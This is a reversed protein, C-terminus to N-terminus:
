KPGKRYETKAGSPDIMSATTNTEKRFARHPGPLDPSQSKETAITKVVRNPGSQCGIKAWGAIKGYRAPRPGLASSFDRRLRYRVLPAVFDVRRPGRSGSGRIRDAEAPTKRRHSFRVAKKTALSSTSAFLFSRLRSTCFAFAFIRTSNSHATM